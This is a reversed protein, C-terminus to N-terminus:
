IANMTCFPTSIPDRRSLSEQLSKMQAYQTIGTQTILWWYWGNELEYKRQLFDGHPAPRRKSQLNSMLSWVDFTHQPFRLSLHLITKKRLFRVTEKSLTKQKQKQNAIHRIHSSPTVGMSFLSTVSMIMIKFFLSLLPDWAHTELAM